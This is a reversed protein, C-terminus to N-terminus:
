RGMKFFKCTERNLGRKRVSCRGDKFYRCWECLVLESVGRERKIIGEYIDKLRVLEEYCERCCVREDDIVRKCRICGIEKIIYM